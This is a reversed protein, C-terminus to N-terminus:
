PTLSALRETCEEKLLDQASPSTDFLDDRIISRCKDGCEIPQLSPIADGVDAYGGIVGTGIADDLTLMAGDPVGDYFSAVAVNASPRCDGRVDEPGVTDGGPLRGPM